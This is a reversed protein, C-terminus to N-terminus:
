LCENKEAVRLKANRFLLLSQLYSAQKMEKSKIECRAAEKRFLKEMEFTTDLGHDYLSHVLGLFWPFIFYDGIRRRVRVMLSVARGFLLGRNRAM